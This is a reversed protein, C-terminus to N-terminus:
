LRCKSFYNFTNGHETESQRSSTLLLFNTLYNANTNPIIKSSQLITIQIRNQFFVFFFQRQLQIPIAPPNYFAKQFHRHDEVSILDEINKISQFIKSFIVQIQNKQRLFIDQLGWQLGTDRLRERDIEIERERQRKDIDDYKQFQSSCVYKNIYKM